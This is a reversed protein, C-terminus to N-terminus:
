LNFFVYEGCVAYTSPFYIILPWGYLVEPWFQSKLGFAAPCGIFITFKGFNGVLVGVSVCM